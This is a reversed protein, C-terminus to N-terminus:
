TNEHNGENGGAGGVGFCTRAFAHAGIESLARIGTKGIKLRGLAFAPVTYLRSTMGLETWELYHYYEHALILNEAQAITLGNSEAWKKVSDTYLNVLKQGPIYDSFYRTRGAVYDTEVRKVTLGSDRAIQEFYPKKGYKAIIEAAADMGRNWARDILKPVDEPAIRGYCPDKKLEDVATERSPFPFAKM